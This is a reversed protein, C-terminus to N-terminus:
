LVGREKILSELQYFQELRSIPREVDKKKTEVPETMQDTEVVEFEFTDGLEIPVIPFGVSSNMM